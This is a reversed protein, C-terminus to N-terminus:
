YEDPKVVGKEDKCEWCQTNQDSQKFKLVIRRGIYHCSCLVLALTLILQIDMLFLGSADWSPVCNPLGSVGANDHLHDYLHAM